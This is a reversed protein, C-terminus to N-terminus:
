FGWSVGVLVSFDPGAAAVLDENFVAYMRASEGFDWACGAGFLLVERDIEELDIEDVMPTTLFLQGLVSMRDHWRYEVGFQGQFIDLLELNADEFADSESPAVYDLAGFLSWRGYSREALVGFGFDLAGNGFGRDESGTPLEIGFRIAVAPGDDDEDRVAHTVVVPLDGFGVRDEELGYATEGEHALAMDFQDRDTSSRGGGPLLTADHFDDIFSDLFGSTGYLAAVEVEVDTGRGLGFRARASSRLLEGDFSVEDGETLDDDVEFISAYALDVAYGPSGREQVAARRPRLSLVNLALPHQNRIHLPGRVVPSPDPAPALTSCAPFTAAFAFLAIARTLTRDHIM